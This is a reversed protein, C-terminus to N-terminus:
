ARVECYKYAMENSAVWQHSLVRYCGALSTEYWDCKDGDRVRCEVTEGRIARIADDITAPRWQIPAPVEKVISWEPTTNRGGEHWWRGEGKIKDHTFQWHNGDRGIPGVIEGNALEYYGGERIVLPQWDWGTCDPLHTVFDLHLVYRQGDLNVCHVCRKGVLYVFLRVTQSNTYEVWSGVKIESM